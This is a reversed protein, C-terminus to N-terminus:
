SAPRAIIRLSFSVCLLASVMMPSLSIGYRSSRLIMTVLARAFKPSRDNATIWFPLAYHSGGGCGDLEAIAHRDQRPRDRLLVLAAEAEDELAHQDGARQQAQD